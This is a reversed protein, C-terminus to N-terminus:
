TGGVTSNKPGVVGGTKLGSQRKQIDSVSGYVGESCWPLYWAIPDTLGIGHNQSSFILSM